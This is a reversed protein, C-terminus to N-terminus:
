LESVSHPLIYGRNTKLMNWSDSQLNCRVKRRRIIIVKMPPRMNMLIMMM